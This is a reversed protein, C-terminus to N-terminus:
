NLSTRRSHVLQVFPVILNFASLISHSKVPVLCSPLCNLLMLVIGKFQMAIRHTCVSVQQGRTTSVIRADELDIKNGLLLVKVDSPAYKCTLSFVTIICLSLCCCSALCRSVRDVECWWHYISQFSEESSVDYVLM